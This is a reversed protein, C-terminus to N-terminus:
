LGEVPVTSTELNRSGDPQLCMVYDASPGASANYSCTGVVLKGYLGNVKVYFYVKQSPKTFTDRPLELASVYDASPATSLDDPFVNLQKSESLVKALVLGEGTETNLLRLRVVTDRPIIESSTGLKSIALLAKTRPSSEITLLLTKSAIEDLQSSTVLQYQAASTIIEAKCSGSTLRDVNLGQIGERNWAGLTGRSANLTALDSKRVLTVIVRTTLEGDSNSNLNNDNWRFKRDAYGPKRFAVLIERISQQSINFEPGLNLVRAEANGLKSTAEYYRISCAVDSLPLGHNDVVQGQIKFVDPAAQAITACNLLSLFLLLAISDLKM